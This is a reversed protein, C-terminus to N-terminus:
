RASGSPASKWRQQLAAKHPREQPSRPERLKKGALKAYETGLLSKSVVVTRSVPHIRLLNLDFLTHIDCRLLLGNAVHDTTAGSYPIIHAADLAPEAKCGTIACRGQYAALLQERFKTQGRRANIERLVREADNEVVAPDFEAATSPADRLDSTALQQVNTTASAWAAEFESAVKSTLEWGTRFGREGQASGHLLGGAECGVFGGQTGSTAIFDVKLRRSRMDVPHFPPPGDSHVQITRGVRQVGSVAFRSLIDADRGDRAQIVWIVDGKSASSLYNSELQSPITQAKRWGNLKSGAAYVFHRPM